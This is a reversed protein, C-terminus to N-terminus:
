RLVFDSFHSRGGLEPHTKESDIECYAHRCADNKFELEFCVPAVIGRNTPSMNPAGSAMSPISANKMSDVKTATM